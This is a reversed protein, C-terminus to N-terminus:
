QEGGRRREIESQIGAACVLALLLLMFVFTAVGAIPVVWLPILRALHLLYFLVAVFLAEVVALKLHFATM